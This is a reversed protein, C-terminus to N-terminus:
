PKLCMQSNRDDSGGFAIGQAGPCQDPVNGVGGLLQHSVYDVVWGPGILMWQLPSSTKPFLSVDRLRLVAWRECTFEVQLCRTNYYLVKWPLRRQLDGSQPETMAM